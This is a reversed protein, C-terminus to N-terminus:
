SPALGVAPLAACVTAALTDQLGALYEERATRLISHAKAAELAFDSDLHQALIFLKSRPLKLAAYIAAGRVRESSYDLNTEGVCYRCYRVFLVSRGCTQEGLDPQLYAERFAIRWETRVQAVQAPPAYAWELQQRTMFQRMMTSVSLAIGLEHVRIDVLARAQQALQANQQDLRALAQKVVDRCLLELRACVYPDLLASTSINLAPPCTAPRM